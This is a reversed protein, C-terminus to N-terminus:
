PSAELAKLRNGYAGSLCGVFSRAARRCGDRVVLWARQDRKLEQRKAADAEWALKDAYAEYMHRDLRALDRDACIAQEIESQAKACDFPAAPARPDSRLTDKLRALPIHVEQPGAAYAAVQYPNFYIALETPLLIFSAFNRANAGAGRAIWDTDTMGEPGGLDRKLQAISIASIREIGKRMFLEALEVRAGDPLLFNFAEFTSNPHAGGSYTYYTFLVSFMASDNRRVEYSLEASWPGVPPVEEGEAGKAFEAALGRAWTEIERDIAQQGTRPYSLEITYTPKHDSLKATRVPLKAGAAYVPALQLLISVLVAFFHKTGM